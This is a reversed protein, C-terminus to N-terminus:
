CLFIVVKHLADIGGHFISDLTSCALPQNEGSPYKFAEFKSLDQKSIKFRDSLMNLNEFDISICELFILTWNIKM